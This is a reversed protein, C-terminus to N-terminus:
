GGGDTRRTPLGTDSCRPRARDRAEGTSRMVTAVMGPAHRRRQERRAAEAGGRVRHGPQGKDAQDPDAGDDAYCSRRERERGLM